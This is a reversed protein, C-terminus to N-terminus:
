PATCRNSRGGDAKAGAGTPTRLGWGAAVGGIPDAGVGAPAHHWIEDSLSNWGALAASSIAAPRRCSACWVACGNGGGGPRRSEGYEHCAAGRICLCCACNPPPPHPPAHAAEGGEGREAGRESPGRGLVQPSPPHCTAGTGARRLGHQTRCATRCATRRATSGWPAPVALSPTPPLPVTAVAFADAVPAAM